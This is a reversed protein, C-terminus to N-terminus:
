FNHLIWLFVGTSSDIKKYLQLGKFNCALAQLKILFLSQCTQKEAFKVWDKLLSKNVSCRRHSNRNKGGFFLATARLLDFLADCSVRRNPLSWNKIGNKSYNRYYKITKLRILSILSSLERINKIKDFVAGPSLVKWFDM